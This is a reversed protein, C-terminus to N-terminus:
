NKAIFLNTFIKDIKKKKNLLVPTIKENKLPESKKEINLALDKISKLTERTNFMDNYAAKAKFKRAKIEEKFSLTFINTTPFIYDGKLLEKYIYFPHNSIFLDTKFISSFEMIKGFCSSLQRNSQIKKNFIYIENKLKEYENKLKNEEDENKINNFKIIDREIQIKKLKKKLREYSIETGILKLDKELNLFNNKMKDIFNDDLDKYDKFNDILGSALTTIDDTIHKIEQKMVKIDPLFCDNRSSNKRKEKDIISNCTEYLYSLLIQTERYIFFYKHKEIFNCFGVESNKYIDCIKIINVILDEKEKINETEQYKSIVKKLNNISELLNIVLFDKEYILILKEMKQTFNEIIEDEYKEKQIKNDIEENIM